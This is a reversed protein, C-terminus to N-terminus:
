KDKERETRIEAVAQAFPEFEQGSKMVSDFAKVADLEEKAELLAKYEKISIQIAVPKGSANHLYQVQSKM